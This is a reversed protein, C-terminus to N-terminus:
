KNQLEAIRQAAKANIKVDGTVPAQAFTVVKKNDNVNNKKLVGKADMETLLIEDLTAAHGVTKKSKVISGDKAKVIVNDKEDLDFDYTSSLYSEFGTKVLENKTFDETFKDKLSEKVKSVKDSLKYQKLKTEWNGSEANYKEEWQKLGDEALKKEAERQLLTKQLEEVKKDNGKGAKEELEAVRQENAVKVMDFIEVLQKGDIESHKFGFTQAAKTALSGLTKGTIKRNIEDDKLVNERLVYSTDVHTKIDDLTISEADEIKFGLASILDETKIDKLAM